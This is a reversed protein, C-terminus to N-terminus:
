GAHGCTRRAGRFPRPSERFRVSAKIRRVTGAAFGGAPRVQDYRINMQLPIPCISDDLL